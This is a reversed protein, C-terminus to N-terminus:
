FVGEHVLCGWFKFAKQDFHHVNSAAVQGNALAQENAICHDEWLQFAADIDGLKTEAEHAPVKLHEAMLRIRLDRATKKHLIAANIEAEYRFGRKNINASGVTLWEDDVILVKAHVDVPVYQVRGCACRDVSLLRTLKFGPREGRIIDQTRATWYSSPDLWSKKGNKIPWVVAILRLEPNKICAAKLEKAVTTSRFYQNEIYIYRRANGIARKYLELIGEEGCPTTRAIQALQDGAPVAPIQSEPNPLLRQTPKHGFRKRIWIWIQGRITTRQSCVCQNWREIFNLSLDNVVPGEFRVTLDHRPLFKTFELKDRNLCRLTKKTRHPNRRPDFVPHDNTDWDNEKINMGGCYGIRGDITMTKQHYSGLLLPHDQEMIQIRDDATWHWRRLWKNLIPTYTMGWILVRATVGQNAKKELLQGFRYHEREAPDTVAYRRPRVLEIDPRCLWTAIRVDKKATQLDNYVYEWTQAGDVLVQAKNGARPPTGERTFWDYVVITLPTDAPSDCLRVRFSFSENTELLPDTSLM